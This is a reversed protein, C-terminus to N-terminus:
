HLLRVLNKSYLKNTVPSLLMDGPSLYVIRKPHVIRLFNQITLRGAWYLKRSSCDLRWAPIVILHFGFPPLTFDRGRLPHVPPTGPASM